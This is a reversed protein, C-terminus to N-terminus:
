IAAVKDPIFNPNVKKRHLQVPSKVNKKISTRLSNKRITERPAEYQPFSTKLTHYSMLDNAQKKKPQEVEILKISSKKASKKGAARLAKREQEEKIGATIRWNLVPPTKSKGIKKPDPDLKHFVRQQSIFVKELDTPEENKLSRKALEDLNGFKRLPKQKFMAFSAVLIGAGLVTTVPEPFAILALAGLRIYNRIM